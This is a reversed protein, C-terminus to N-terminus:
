RSTVPGVTQNLGTTKRLLVIAKRRGKREVTVTWMIFHFLLSLCITCVHCQNHTGCYKLHPHLWADLYTYSLSISSRMFCLRVSSINGWADEKLVECVVRSRM